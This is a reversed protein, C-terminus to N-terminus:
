QPIMQDSISMIKSYMSFPEETIAVYNNLSKSMKKHGDLGVLLPMIMVAQPRQGYKKQMSRGMLMNLKQDIGGVELDAKLEVSDYGQMVSYLLEHLGIDLGEKLRKQFDERYLAQTVTANAIFGLADAFQMKGYWQSNYRVECKKLDLIVDAQRFYTEANKKIEKDSLVPRTANRGSPDGIKATFDGILFIIKHGQEQFEKLKQLCVAHGLHLDPSTPDVGHKIRLKKGKKLKALLENKGIIEDVGRALLEQYLSTSM